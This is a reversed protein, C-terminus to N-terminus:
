LEKHPHSSEQFDYVQFCFEQVGEASRFSVMRPCFGRSDEEQLGFVQILQLIVQQLYFGQANSVRCCFEQVRCGVLLDFEQVRCGVLLFFEQVRCGVLLFFEQVHYEERCGFGLRCAEEKMQNLSAQLVFGQDGCM